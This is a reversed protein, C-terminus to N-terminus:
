DAMSPMRATGIFRQYGTGSRSTWSGPRFGINACSPNPVPSVGHLATCSAAHVANFRHPRAHLRVNVPGGVGSPNM